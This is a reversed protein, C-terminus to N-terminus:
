GPVFQLAVLIALLWVGPIAIFIWANTEQGRSWTVWAAFPSLICAIWFGILLLFVVWAVPNILNARHDFVLPSFLAAVAGFPVMALCLLTLGILLATRQGKELHVPKLGETM